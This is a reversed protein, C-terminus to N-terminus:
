YNPRRYGIPGSDLSRTQVQGGPYPAEVLMGDGIYMAVHEPGNEGPIYFILDGPRLESPSIKENNPWQSYTSLGVDM